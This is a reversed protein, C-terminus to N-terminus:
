KFVGRLYVKVPAVGIVEFYFSGSISTGIIDGNSDTKVAEVWLQYMDPDLTEIVELNADNDSDWILDTNMFKHISGTTSPLVGVPLADGPLRYNFYLKLTDHSDNFTGLPEVTVGVINFIHINYYDADAEEPMDGVGQAGVIVANSGLKPTCSFSAVFLITLFIFLKM